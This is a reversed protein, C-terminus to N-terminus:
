YHKMMTDHTVSMSDHHKNMLTDKMEVLKMGCKPCKGPTDSIIEPHMPCTYKVGTVAMADNTPSDKTATQEVSSSGNCALLGISLMIALAIITKKM